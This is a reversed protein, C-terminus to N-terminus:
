SLAEVCRAVKIAPEAQEECLSVSAGIARLAAEFMGM